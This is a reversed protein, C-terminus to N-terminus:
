AALDQSTKSKPPAMKRRRLNVALSFLRNCDQIWDRPFEPRTKSNLTQLRLKEKNGLVDNVVDNFRTLEVIWQPTTSDDKGNENPNTEAQAKNITEERSDQPPQSTATAQTNFTEPAVEPGSPATEALNKEDASTNQENM